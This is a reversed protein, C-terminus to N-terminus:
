SRTVQLGNESLSFDVFRAGDNLPSEELGKRIRGAAEADNAIM